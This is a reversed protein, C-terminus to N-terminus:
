LGEPLTPLGSERLEDRSARTHALGNFLSTKGAGDLGIVVVHDGGRFAVVPLDQVRSVKDGGNRAATLPLRAEDIQGQLSDADAPDVVAAKETAAPASPQISAAAGM